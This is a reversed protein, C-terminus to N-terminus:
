QIPCDCQPIGAEIDHHPEAAFGTAVQLGPPLPVNTQSPHLHLRDIMDTITNINDPIYTSITPICSLVNVNQNLVENDKCLREIESRVVHDYEASCGDYESVQETVPPPTNGEVPLKASCMDNYKNRLHYNDRRMQCLYEELPTMTFSYNEVANHQMHMRSLEFELSRVYDVSVLGFSAPDEDGLESIEPADHQPTPTAVYDQTCDGHGVNTIIPLVEQRGDQVAQLYAGKEKVDNENEKKANEADVDYWGKKSHGDYELRNKMLIWFVHQNRSYQLKVTEGNAIQKMQEAGQGFPYMSEFFVNARNYKNNNPILEVHRVSGIKKRYFTQAIMEETINKYVCPIYLAFESMTTPIITIQNSTVTPQHVLLHAITENLEKLPNTMYFLIYGM